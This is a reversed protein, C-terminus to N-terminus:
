VTRILIYTEETALDIFTKVIVRAFFSAIHDSARSSRLETQEVLYRMEGYLTDAVNNKVAAHGDPLPVTKM